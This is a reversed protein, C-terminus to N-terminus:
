QVIWYRRMRASRAPVRSGLEFRGQLAVRGFGGLSPVTFATTEAQDPDFYFRDRALPAFLGAELMLALGAFPVVSLRGSGGLALWTMSETAPLETREGTGELEGVDFIGCARLRLPGHLPWTVPCLSSRLAWWKLSATGSPTAVSESLTYNYSLAFLPSILSATELAIDAEIGLGSRTSPAVGGQRLFGVGAGASLAGLEADQARAGAEPEPARNLGADSDVLVAAIVALATVVEDCSAGPVTRVTERGSEERLSLRGRLQGREEYLAIRFVFGYEGPAAPRLHRSRALLELSFRDLKECQPGTSYEVRFPTASKEASHLNQLPLICALLLTKARM